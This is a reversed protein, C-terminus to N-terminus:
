RNWMLTVITTTLPAAKMVAHSHVLRVSKCYAMTRPEFDGMSGLEKWRVVGNSVGPDIIYLDSFYQYMYLRTFNCPMRAAFVYFLLGLVGTSKLPLRPVM